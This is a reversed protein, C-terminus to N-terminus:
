PIIPYINKPWYLITVESQLVLLLGSIQYSISHVAPTHIIDPSTRAVPWGGAIRM